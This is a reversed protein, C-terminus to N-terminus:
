YLLLDVRNNYHEVFDNKSRPVQQKVCRLNQVRPAVEEPDIPEALFARTYGKKNRDEKRSM